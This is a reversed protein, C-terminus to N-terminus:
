REEPTTPPQWGTPLRYHALGNGDLHTQVPWGDLHRIRHVIAALRWCRYDIGAKVPNVDDGRLLAAKIQSCQTVSRRRRNM